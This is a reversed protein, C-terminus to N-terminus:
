EIDTRTRVPVQRVQDDPSPEDLEPRKSAVMVIMRDHALADNTLEVSRPQGIALPLVTDPFAVIERLPLVRAPSPISRAGDGLAGVNGVGDIEIM